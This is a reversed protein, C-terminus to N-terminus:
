CSVSVSVASYMMCRRWTAPEVGAADLFVWLSYFERLIERSLRGADNEAGEFLGLLLVLRTYFDSWKKKGPPAHAFGCLQQLLEKLQSGFRQCSDDSRDALGSAKRILHALWLQRRNVWDCYVGYNDSVLIGRWNEVLAHFAKRSRNSHVRFYAAQRSAGQMGSMEALLASFRPGYGSQYEPPLKAKVWRGCRSCQSKKLVGHKVQM